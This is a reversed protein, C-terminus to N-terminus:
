EYNFTGIIFAPILIYQSLFILFNCIKFNNFQFPIFLPMDSLTSKYKAIFYNIHLLLSLFNASHLTFTDKM